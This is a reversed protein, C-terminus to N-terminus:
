KGKLEKLVQEKARRDLDEQEAQWIKYAMLGMYEVVAEKGRETLHSYDKGVSSRYFYSSNNMIEQLGGYVLDKIAAKQMKYSKM